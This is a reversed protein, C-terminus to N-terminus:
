ASLNQNLVFITATTVSSYLTNIYMHLLHVHVYVHPTTSGSRFLILMNPGPDSILGKELQFNFLM